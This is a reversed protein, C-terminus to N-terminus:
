HRKISTALKRLKLYLNNGLITKALDLIKVRLITKRIYNKDQNVINKFDEFCTDRKIAFRPIMHKDNQPKYVGAQSCCSITYNLEKVSKLVQKNIRGGPAAFTTVMDGTINELIEKSKQLEQKAEGESLDSLFRHSMGHSGIVMGSDHLSHIQKQSLFNESDTWDTTIYFEAKFGFEKLIPAALIHNSVHGDDFTIVIDKNHEHGPSLQHLLKSQFNNEHLYRMQQYFVDRDLIYDIDAPDTAGSPHENNEIAHYMLVVVGNM